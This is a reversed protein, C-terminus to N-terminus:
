QLPLILNHLSGEILDIIAKPYFGFVIILAALPYLTLRERWNVDPMEAYAPNLKGLMMRQIAWLYYSATIIVSLASIITLVQWKELSGLFVTFESIFGCLGPLGLSAFFALGLLGAYEPVQKALGGFGEINRHHARDYIVGVILFLMPSILGHTWLNLVAGDIGQQTFASMGLLCFGMHSVSSYAIMRKLDKQALCIFAAYVINITGFVAMAGAAWKTASPLISYNIRLIGYIGMKLLVGALIV